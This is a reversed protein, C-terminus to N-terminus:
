KQNEDKLYFREFKWCAVSPKMEVACWSRSLCVPNRSWSSLIELHEFHAM